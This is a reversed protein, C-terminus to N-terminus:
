TIPQMNPFDSAQGIDEIMTYAGNSVSASISVTGSGSLRVYTTTLSTVIQSGTTNTLVASVMYPVNAAATPIPLGNMTDIYTPGANNLKHVRVRAQDGGVTSTALGKVTIRYARDTEFTVPTTYANTETTTVGVSNTLIGRGGVHGWGQVNGHLVLQGGNLDVHDANLNLESDGSGGASQSVASITANGAGGSSMFLEYRDPPGVLRSYFVGAPTIGPLNMGGLFLSGQNLQAYTRDVDTNYTAVGQLYANGMPDAGASAAVSDVLAGDTDYVLIRDNTGDIVIRAGSMAGTPLIIITQFDNSWSGSM